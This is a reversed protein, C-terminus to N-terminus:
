GLPWHRVSVWRGTADQAILTLREVRATIPLGPRVEAELAVATAVDVGDAVTLHPIPDPITGGYPPCDPFSAVSGATMRRFPEAPDPVLYVVEGPFRALAAFTVDFAPVGGALEAVVDAVLDDVVSRFPYLVTVHAPVGVAAAPDCRLRHRAVLAEAEPVLVVLATEQMGRAERGLEGPPSVSETLKV